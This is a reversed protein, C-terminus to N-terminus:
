PLRILFATKRGDEFGAKRYFNLTSEENSGSMLMVKYCHAEEALKKAYEMCESAYGMGRCGERSVVNEILAYPRAGRTLNPVILCVLSSVIQGDVENVILHHHSDSLIEEWTKQLEPTDEPIGTEHLSLYLTLIEQLDEKQAERIM